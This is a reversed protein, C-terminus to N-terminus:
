GSGTEAAFCHGLFILGCLSLWADGPSREILMFLPGLLYFGHTIKQSLDLEKFHMYIKTLSVLVQDKVALM